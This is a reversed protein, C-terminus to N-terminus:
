ARKRPRGGLTGNLRSSRAKRQRSRGAGLLAGVGVFRLSARQTAPSVDRRLVSLNALRRPPRGQAQLADLHAAWPAM